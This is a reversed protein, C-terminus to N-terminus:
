KKTKANKLLKETDDKSNGPRQSANRFIQKKESGLLSYRYFVQGKQSNDLNEGKGAGMLNDPRERILINNKYEYEDSLGLNHGLEHTATKSIEEYSLGAETIQVNGGLDARGIPDLDKTPNVDDVLAIVHDNSKIQEKESIISINLSFNVEVKQGNVDNFNQSFVKKAEYEIGSKIAALESPHNKSSSLNILKANVTVFVTKSGDKNTVTSFSVDRGYDDKLVIPNDLGFNYPSWETYKAKLPDLSLWRAVRSDYIREGFNLSNGLGKVEDDKEKGNFGFRYDNAIFQRGPELMGFPYYDKENVRSM